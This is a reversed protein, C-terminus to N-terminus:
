DSCSQGSAIVWLSDNLSNGIETGFVLRIGAIVGTVRDHLSACFKLMGGDWATCARLLLQFLEVTSSVKSTRAAIALTLRQLSM